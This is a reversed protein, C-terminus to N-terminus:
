RRGAPLLKWGSNLALAALALKILAGPIFPLLGLALVNGAGVFFALWTLGLIYIVVMGAAMALIASFLRRDWGRECLRGVIWAATIFGFLYGGTPGILRAPGAAGGAFVPIWLAGAAIYAVMSLAGRRSGLSAGILLVAFTQGTIPVPSFPLPIAIQSALAVLVSGSLILIAERLLGQGPIAAEAIASKTTRYM